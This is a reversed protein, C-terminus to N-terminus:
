AARITLGSNIASDGWILLLLLGFGPFYACFGQVFRNLGQDQRRDLTDGCGLITASRTESVDVGCHTQGRM